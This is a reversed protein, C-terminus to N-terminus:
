RKQEFNSRGLSYVNVANGTLAGDSCIIELHLFSLEPKNVFLYVEAINDDPYSRFYM